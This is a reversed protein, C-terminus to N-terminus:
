LEESGGYIKEGPLEAGSGDFELDRGPFSRSLFVRRQWAVRPDLYIDRFWTHRPTKLSDEFGNGIDFSRLRGTFSCGAFGIM